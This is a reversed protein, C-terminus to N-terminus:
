TFTCTGQDLVVDGLQNTTRLIANDGDVWISITLADGAIVPKSFRANMSRFRAPDSACLSHLLARGTYGYTCLGHMIPRDFGARAAFAPDTHLPNRDGTLRYILAIDKHTKYTVRHTPEADPYEIKPVSGRDGGWGGEGFLFFVSQTKFLLKGTKVDFSDSDVQVMASNGKDWIGAISGLSDVEGEPPFEDELQIGMGGHLERASEFTGLKELPVGGKRGLTLAVGFTPLVRQNTDTTNETTFALEETGAGVGLAYLLADKSTWSVRVPGGTEGVSDPNIPM